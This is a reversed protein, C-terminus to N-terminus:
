IYINQFHEESDDEKDVFELIKKQINRMTDIHEHINAMM